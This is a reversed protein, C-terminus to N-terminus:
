DSRLAEMPLIRLARRAPLWCALLGAAALLAIVAPLVWPESTPLRTVLMADQLRVYGLALACGLAGGAVLYAAAGATVTRFIQRHGAGLAVRIGIERTRCTVAFAIMAYIGLLSLGLTTLGMGIMSQSFSSMAAREDWNVKELPQVRRLQITPDVAAVATRLPGSLRAPDGHGRIALYFWSRTEQLPLYLGAARAPDAASLGLDPVVGVIERWVPAAEPDNPDVLRLRRGLPQRGSLFRDVFPENVIAVAPADPVLDREEFLRGATAEADLAAFFGPLVRATPAPRPDGTREADRAGGDRAGAVAEVVVLSESADQRPLATTVGSAAVGPVRRLAEAIRAEIRAPPAGPPTGAAESSTGESSTGGTEPSTGESSTGGAEAIWVQATLVRDRPLGFDREAHASFGRALVLSGSLMAVSLAMELVMMAASFRGLRFNGGRSSANLAAVPDRGTAKMAPVVGSLLIILGTVGIVFALTRGSIAIEVWFPLETLLRDLYSVALHAAALGLGAALVGLLAMEVTLQGILRGRAAGLATRVALEGRRYATRTLILNAVNSAIVALVAILLLNMATAMPLAGEPPEVYPTLWFRTEVEPPATEFWRERLRQAEADAQALEVGPRLIGFALPARAGADAGGLTADDLPIWLEGDAPFTAEDPLVGVVTREVGGVNIARGLIAPDASYRRRWLSERLVAVPPAGDAGDAAVLNRGLIPAYPLRQLTSATLSAGQVSDVEGSERLINLLGADVAGLHEFSTAHDRLHRFSGVDLSTRHGEPATRVQFRVFREGGEFPLRGGLVSDLMSFGTTAIAVGLGLALVSIAALIPQKRILRLALKIELTSIGPLHGGPRNSDRVSHQHPM